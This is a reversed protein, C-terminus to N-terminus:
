ILDHVERENTVIECLRHETLFNFDPLRANSTDINSNNIFFSNFVEAKLKNDTIYDNGVKLPPYSTM